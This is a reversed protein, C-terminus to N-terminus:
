ILSMQGLTDNFWNYWNPPCYKQAYEVSITYGYGAALGAVHANIAEEWSSWGSQGWGWANYSRFCNAGKSSETNSIAPSWRPDVGNEWAATAFTKGYGELPSGALYNDIRETWEKIFAEKGCKWDVDELNALGVSAEQLAKAEEAASIREQEAKRAAEEAARREAEKKENVTKLAATIDRTTPNALVSQVSGGVSLKENEAPKAANNLSLSDNGNPQSAEAAEGSSTGGLLAVTDTTDATVAGLGFEGSDGKGGWASAFGLGVVLALVCSAAGVALVKALVSKKKTKRKEAM